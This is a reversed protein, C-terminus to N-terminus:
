DINLLDFTEYNAYKLFGGSKTAEQHAAKDLTGLDSYVTTPPIQSRFVVIYFDKERWEFGTESVLTRLTEALESFNFIKDYPATAYDERLSRMNVMVKALLQCSYDVTRLDLQHPREDYPSVTLFNQSDEETNSTNSSAHLPSRKHDVNAFATDGSHPHPLAVAM